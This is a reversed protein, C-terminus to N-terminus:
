GGPEFLDGADSATLARDFWAEIEQLDRSAEIRERVPDPVALGRRDLIRLVDEIGKQMRGTELGEERGEERGEQRLRMSTESRFFSLDVAMLQRWITAGPYSGLGLETLEAFIAATEEDTAKLAEALRELIAAVGPDRGHTIASLTALPIDRAAEDASAVVPVNHPGLVLPRMTLLPWVAPGVTFPGSAWRATAKDQCTVLLIVPLQYKAHLHAAYYCWSAPKRPDPRSQAEVALLYASGDATEMRLLTDVRRELPETETLDTPMLATEVPEPFDLGLTRFTRGFVGPDKQFIRHLAEHSSTVM